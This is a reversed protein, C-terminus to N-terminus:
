GPYVPCRPDGCICQHGVVRHGARQLKVLRSDTCQPKARTLKGLQRQLKSLLRAGDSIAVDRQADAIIAADERKERREKAFDREYGSADCVIKRSPQRPAGPFIELKRGVLHRIQNSNM